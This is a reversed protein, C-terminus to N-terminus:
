RRRAVVWGVLFALALSRLPAERATRSVQDLVGGPQRSDEIAQAISETTSQVTEAVGKVADTAKDLVTRPDDSLTM